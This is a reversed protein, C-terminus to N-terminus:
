KRDWVLASAGLIAADSEKLNSFMLQVKNKFVQILSKEMAEKTPTMIFSGAKTLGGFLIIAQPSSFMVFNALAEGLIEGTFDFIGKAIEDGQIACEYVTQSTLDEELFDRLLSVKTPNAALFEVATDRVGTASAYSELCGRSGTGRHLRGGHRVIVHGLEGAFGDHGVVMKGDIVIGSGVGTGLTITIFHKMGKAAGYMMEGMAAANADNTLTTKIDFKETILHAIPVIGQWHLNAAYEINGTYLNGNPAGMGIGIINEKGGHRDIMPQLKNYLENVFFNVPKESATPIRDQELINGDSDVIGFKATTGGLDIGVAYQPTTTNM